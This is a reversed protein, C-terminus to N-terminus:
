AQPKRAIMRQDSLDGKGRARMLSAGRIGHVPLAALLNVVQFMTPMDEFRARTFSFSAQGTMLREIRPPTAPAPSLMVRARSDHDGAEGMAPMYAFHLVGDPAPGAAPVPAPSAEELESLEMRFFAFGDWSARHIRRRGMEQPAPLECCLKNFGLEERGSLIPECRNEWLVTLLPGRLTEEAGEFLVPIKVGLMSYSRGALWPLDHLITHELTAVPDGDLAFGRPLLAELAPADTEFRVTAVTFPADAGGAFRGGDPGQRPGVSPGFMVPMRYRAHPDFEFSM